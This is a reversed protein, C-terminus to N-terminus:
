INPNELKRIRELLHEIYAATLLWMDGNYNADHDYTDGFGAIFRDSFESPILDRVEKYSYYAM